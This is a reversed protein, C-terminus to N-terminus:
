EFERRVSLSMLGAIVWGMLGCGAAIASWTLWPTVNMRGGALAMASGARDLVPAGSGTGVFGAQQLAAAVLLLLMASLLLTVLVRRAWNFRLLLGIASALLAVAVLGTLPGPWSAGQPMAYAIPGLNLLRHGDLSAAVAWACAGVSLVILLWAVGTVFRSPAGVHFSQVM